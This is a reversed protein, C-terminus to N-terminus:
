PQFRSPAVARLDIPWARMMHDGSMEALVVAEFYTPNGNQHRLKELMDAGTASTLMELLAATRRSQIILLRTSSSKGPLLAVIGPEITRGAGEDIARFIEKGATANGPSRLQVAGENETLHFSLRDLYFQYPQITGHSGLAIQNSSELDSMSTSASSNFTLSTGLGVSDLYHALRLVAFTDSTATYTQELIPTGASQSIRVLDPSSRWDEFRNVDIDRARLGHSSPFKFFVPTPLVVQTQKASGLFDKWFHFSSNSLPPASSRDSTSTWQPARWLWINLSALVLCTAILGGFLWVPVQMHGPTSRSSDYAAQGPADTPMDGGQLEIGYSGIPLAIKLPCNHGETDYFEKLKRRLRSMQVRVSADIKPDFDARRGLAETAVGYESIDKGRQEWLYILVKKQTDAREFSHSELIPDLVKRTLDLNGAQVENPAPVM